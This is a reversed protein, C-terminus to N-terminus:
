AKGDYAAVLRKPARRRWSEVLVERVEEREANALRVIVMPYNQYHASVQFTKPKWDVLEAREVPDVYVVISEGDDLLRCFLKDRVRFAPTGYATREVVEPLALALKRVTAFRIM